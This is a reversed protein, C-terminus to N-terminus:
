FNMRSLATVETVILGAGGDARSGLHVLHWDNALGDTASYRCMPSAVIRNPFTLDRLAYPAFVHAPQM